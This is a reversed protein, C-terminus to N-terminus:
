WRLAVLVGKGSGRTVVPAVSVRLADRPVESWAESSTAAGVVSGLVLGGLGGMAMGLSVCAGRGSGSCEGQPSSALVLGGGLAMGGLLGALAGAAAQTKRGASKEVKTVAADPVTVLGVGPGVLVLGRDSREVFTGILPKPGLTPATFKYRAGATLRYTEEAAAAGSLALALAALGPIRSAKGM